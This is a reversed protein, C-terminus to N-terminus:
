YDAWNWKDTFLVVSYAMDSQLEIDATFMSSEFRWFDRGYVNNTTVEFIQYYLGYQDGLNEAIKDIKMKGRGLVEGNLKCHSSSFRAFMVKGSDDDFYIGLIGEDLNRYYNGNIELLLESIVEDKTMELFRTIPLSNRTYLIEGPHDGKCSTCPILVVLAFLIALKKM